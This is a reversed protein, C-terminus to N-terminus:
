LGIICFTKRLILEEFLLPPSLFPGPSFGNFILGENLPM